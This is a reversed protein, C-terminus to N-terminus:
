NSILNAAETYNPRTNNSSVMIAIAKAFAECEYRVQPSAESIKLIYGLAVQISNMTKVSKIKQVLQQYFKLSLTLEEQMDLHKFYRNSDEILEFIDTGPIINEIIEKLAGAEVYDLDKERKSRWTALQDRFKDSIDIQLLIFAWYSINATGGVKHGVNHLTQMIDPDNPYKIRVEHAISIFDIPRNPYMGVVTEFIEKNRNFGENKSSFNNASLVHAVQSYGNYYIIAGLISQEIELRNHM